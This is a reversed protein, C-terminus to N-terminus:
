STAEACSCTKPTLIRLQRKAWGNSAMMATNNVLIDIDGTCKAVADVMADTSAQNTVDLKIAFAAEGLAEAVKNAEEVLLDAIAVRAGEAVYREVIALNIGRAGGTIVAVKDKLKM